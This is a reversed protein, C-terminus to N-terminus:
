CMPAVRVREAKGRRRANNCGPRRAASCGPLRRALEIQRGPRWSLSGSRLVAGLWHGLRPEIV